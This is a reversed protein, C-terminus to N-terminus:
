MTLQLTLTDHFSTMQSHTVQHIKHGPVHVLHHWPLLQVCSHSCCSRWTRGLVGLLVCSQLYRTKIKELKSGINTWTQYRLWKSTVEASRLTQSYQMMNVLCFTSVQSFDLTPSDPSLRVARRDWWRRGKRSWHPCRRWCWLCWKIVKWFLVYFLFLTFAAFRIVDDNNVTTLGFGPFILPCWFCLCREYTNLALSLGSPPPDIHGLSLCCM